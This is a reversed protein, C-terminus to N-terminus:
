ASCPVLACSNNSGTTTLIIGVSSTTPGIIRYVAETAVVSSYFRNIAVSTGTPFCVVVNTIDLGCSCNYQDSLYFDYLAPNFTTTTTTTSSTSTTTTSTTTTTTGIVLDIYNNCLLSTSVVRVTTTGDPVLYSIYGSELDGKAVTTEFPSLFGDINSYLNFPGTDAGATTLTILVTQAM